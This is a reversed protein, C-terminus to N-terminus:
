DEWSSAGPKFGLKPFPRAGSSAINDLHGAVRKIIRAAILTVIVEKRTIKQDMMREKLKEYIIKLSKEMETVKTPYDQNMEEISNHAELFMLSIEDKMEHLMDRVDHTIEGKYSYEERLYALDKAYDGIREYDIVLSILTLGGHINPTTSLSFYEFVKKRVKQVNRNVQKDMKVIEEPDIDQDVLAKISLLYMEQTQHHLKDMIEYSEDILPNKRLADWVNRFM